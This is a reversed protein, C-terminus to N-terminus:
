LNISKELISELERLVTVVKDHYVKADETRRGGKNVMSQEFRWYKIRSELLDIFSRKAETEDENIVKRVIRDLDSETLKIKRM